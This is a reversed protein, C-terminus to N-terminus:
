SCLFDRLRENAPIGERPVRAAARLARPGGPVHQCFVILAVYLIKSPLLLSLMCSM